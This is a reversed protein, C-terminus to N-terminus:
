GHIVEPNLAGFDVVGAGAAEALALFPLDRAPRGLLSAGFADVAVQDTGVIMTDTSELDALSGGTPGNRAMTRTGDLVVFTPRVLRALEAVVRHIEQHLRSREGGLLGLWGKMTLSAGSRFHDKVPSIAILKDATALPGLLMPWPQPSRGVDLIVPAFLGDVPLVVRAGAQRAAPGIGSREFASVPDNIPNDLVVVSAAGAEMCLRTVERVLQPHTTASLMAPTGFAANVKVVVRDGPQIYDHIGGIAAVAERVTVARDSGHVIAMRGGCGPVSWDPLETLAAGHRAIWGAERGQLWWGLSGAALVAAGSMACNALFARRHLSVGASM